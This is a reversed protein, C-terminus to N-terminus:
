GFRTGYPNTSPHILWLPVRSQPAVVRPIHLAPRRCPINSPSPSCPNASLASSSSSTFNPSGPSHLFVTVFCYLVLFTLRFVLTVAVVFLIPGASQTIALLQIIINQSPNGCASQHRSQYRMWANIPKLPNKVHSARFGSHISSLPLGVQHQCTSTVLRITATSLRTTKGRCPEM